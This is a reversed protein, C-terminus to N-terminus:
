EATRQKKLPPQSPGDAETEKLNRQTDPVTEPEIENGGEKENSM